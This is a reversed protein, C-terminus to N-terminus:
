CASIRQKSESKLVVTRTGYNQVSLSSATFRATFPIFDGKNQISVDDFVSPVARLRNNANVHGIIEHTKIGM